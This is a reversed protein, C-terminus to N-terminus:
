SSQEVILYRDKQVGHNHVAPRAIAGETALLGQESAAMPESVKREDRFGLSLAQSDVASAESIHVDQGYDRLASWCM